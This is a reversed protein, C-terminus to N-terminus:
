AEITNLLQLKPQIVVLLNPYRIEAYKTLTQKLKSLLSTDFSPLNLRLYFMACQLAKLWKKHAEVPEPDNGLDDWSLVRLARDMIVRFYYMFRDSDNSQQEEDEFLSFLYRLEQMRAEDEYGEVDPLRMDINVIM